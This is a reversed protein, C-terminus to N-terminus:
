QGGIVWHNDHMQAPNDVGRQTRESFYNYWGATGGGYPNSWDSLHYSYPHILPMPPRGDGEPPRFTLDFVDSHLLRKEQDSGLSPLVSGPPLKVEGVKAFLMSKSTGTDEGRAKSTDWSPSDAVASGLLSLIVAVCRFGAM